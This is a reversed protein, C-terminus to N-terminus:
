CGVNRVFTVCETALEVWYIKGDYEFYDGDFNINSDPESAEALILQKTVNNM